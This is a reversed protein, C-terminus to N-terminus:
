KPEERCGRWGEGLGVGGCSVGSPQRTYVESAGGGRVIRNPGNILRALTLIPRPRTLM